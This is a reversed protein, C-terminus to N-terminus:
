MLFMSIFVTILGSVGIAVSSMAGEIEGIEIAKTTGMAHSCTGIAVGAAVPNKVRIVRILFPALIAGLIGTVIVAAVTIAGIGGLSEAVKMAIPTTVSKPLLSSTVENDLGFAKCLLYVSAVSTLSGVLCGIIVPLFYQKLVARQRYISLSLVATAPGLLMNIFSGGVQFQEVRIGTVSLFIIIFLITLLLPNAIPTKLKKSLWQSFKYAGLCLLIGFFQHNVIMDLM